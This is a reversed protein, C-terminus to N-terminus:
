ERIAGRTLLTAFPGVGAGRLGVYGGATTGLLVFAAVGLGLARKWTLVHRMRTAPAPGETRGGGFEDILTLDLPQSSRPLPGGEQVFATAMVIPLGIIFLIIAFGPVWDPLGVGDAVSLIVQYGVWSGVLYIMLVQWISRRHVEAILRRLPQM